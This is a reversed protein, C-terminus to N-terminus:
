RNGIVTVPNLPPRADNSGPERCTGALRARPMRSRSVSCGRCSSDAVPSPSRGRSGRVLCGHVCLRVVGARPMRYRPPRADGRAACSADTCRMVLVGEARPMRDRPPRADGRAACSADTVRIVSWGPVLFGAIPSPSRGRSGRVLCGHVYLRGVGARPIRGDPLALTGALRARPMRSRSVSGGRCSFDAVPSPSRGRSGRVLCGHAFLRVGQCSCDPRPSPSRGRSGRM